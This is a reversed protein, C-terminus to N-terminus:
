LNGEWKKDKKFYYQTHTDKQKKAAFFVVMKKYNKLFQYSLQKTPVM